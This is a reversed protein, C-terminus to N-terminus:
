HGAILLRVVRWRGAIMGLELGIDENSAVVGYVTPGVIDCTEADEERLVSKKVRGAELLESEDPAEEAEAKLEAEDPEEIAELAARREQWDEGLNIRELVDGPAQPESM